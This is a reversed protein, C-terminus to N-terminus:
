ASKQEDHKPAEVPADKKPTQAAAAQAAKDKEEQTQNMMSIENYIFFARRQLGNRSRAVGYLHASYLCRQGSHM